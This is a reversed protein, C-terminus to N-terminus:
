RGETGDALVEPIEHKVTNHLVVTLQEPRGDGVDAMRYWQDIGPTCFSYGDDASLPCNEWVMGPDTILYFVDGPLTEGLIELHVRAMLEQRNPVLKADTM